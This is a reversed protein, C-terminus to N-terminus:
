LWLILVSFAAAAVLGVVLQPSAKPPRQLAQNTLWKNRVRHIARPKSHPQTLLHSHCSRGVQRNPFEDELPSQGKNEQEVQRFVRLLNGRLVGQLEEERWGRRLLEAILVPYTSVDELGKPFRRPWWGDYSGSIGIFESGIVARIHEFHNTARSLTLSRQIFDQPQLSPHGSVLLQLIDDPINLMNDCVAKAASHSFIVPAKSVKLAQQALAHSGYSLDVMMGLRNMEEIVKQLSLHLIKKPPPNDPPICMHANWPTNCTFTLTLYRVGLLYFSRLVSLSSDVSHGGEVGILCALKQTRNLGEASTVLELENYSDCMRRILDIQELTLRVADQDQTQCPAYASWFQAGVFGDRLKDLNTQGLTFNRLNVGQLKNQFHRKLLRPLHNHSPNNPCLLLLLPCPRWSM